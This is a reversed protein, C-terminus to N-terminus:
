YGDGQKSPFHIRSSIIMFLRTATFHYAHAPQFRTKNQVWSFYSCSNWQRYHKRTKFPCLCYIATRCSRTLMPSQSIGLGGKFNLLYKVSFFPRPPHITGKYKFLLPGRGGWMSLWEFSIMLPCGKKQVALVRPVSAFHLTSNICNGLDIRNPYFLPSFRPKATQSIAWIRCNGGARESIALM